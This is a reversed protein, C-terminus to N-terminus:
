LSQVQPIAIAHSVCWDITDYSNEAQTIQYKFSEFFDALKQYKSEDVTRNDHDVEYIITLQYNKITEIMGKLVDM